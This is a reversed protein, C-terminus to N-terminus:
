YSAGGARLEPPVLDIPIGANIVLYDSLAEREAETMKIEIHSTRHLSGLWAKRTREQTIVVTIIHCSQCLQLAMDRGDWPLDGDLELPANAALYQALTDTQWADLAAIPAAEPKAAELRERWTPADGGSGAIEGTLSDPLGAELAAALLTRGGDPIFAFVDDEAQGPAAGPMALFLLAALTIQVMAKTM